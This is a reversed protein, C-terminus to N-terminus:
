ILKRMWDKSTVSWDDGWSGDSYIRWIYSKKIDESPKMPNYVLTNKKIVEDVREDGGIMENFQSLGIIDCNIPLSEYKICFMYSDWQLASVPMIDKFYIYEGSENIKKKGIAFGERTDIGSLWLIIEKGIFPLSVARKSGCSFHLINM